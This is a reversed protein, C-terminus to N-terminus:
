MTNACLLHFPDIWAYAKLPFHVTLLEGEASAMTINHKLLVALPLMYGLVGQVILPDPETWMFILHITKHTLHFKVDDWLKLMLVYRLAELFKRKWKHLTMMLRHLRLCHLSHVFLYCRDSWRIVETIDV